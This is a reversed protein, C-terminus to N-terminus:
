FTVPIVPVKCPSRHIDIIIDGHIRGLGLCIEGVYLHLAFLFVTYTLYVNKLFGANILYRPLSRYPWVPLM